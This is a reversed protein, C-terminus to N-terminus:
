LSVWFLIVHINSHVLLKGFPHCGPLITCYFICGLSFIDVSRSTRGNISADIPSAELMAEPGSCEEQLIPSDPSLRHAMVEPAQWGVSGPGAGAITSGENRSMSMGVSNNMTSMGFSSQGMLQKGLGMDSIKVVFDQSQFSEFVGDQGQNKRKRNKRALLINAPKLDRHVIRLSHIHKVGLAIEFLLQKTAKDIPIISGKKVRSQPLVSKMRNRAMVTILDQLNMDCLELALYVFDGRVEKLFYRVVNPHGDSEILLSIERDASAHYAKLMRKVAVARGELQGKYVVTGHGGFGLVQDSVDIVCNSAQNTDDNDVSEKNSEDSSDRRLKSDIKLKERRGLEFSVVFALAVAPPIWSTMLKLFFNFKSQPRPQQPTVINPFELVEENLTIALNDQFLADNNQRIFSHLLCEHYSSSLPDCFDNKVALAYDDKRPRQQQGSWLPLKEMSHKNSGVKSSLRPMHPLGDLLRQNPGTPQGGLPLAFLEGTELAGFVTGGMAQNPNDGFYNNESIADEELKSSLYESSFSNSSPADPVVFVGLSSGSSSELAFAVPTKFADDAIWMVKGTQGDCLAVKGGPTTVVKTTHFGNKNQVQDDENHNIMGIFEEDGEKGTPLMLLEPHTNLWDEGDDNSGITGIMDELSLVESTSFQVDLEGTRADQVTVLYDVRGMWILNRQQEASANDNRECYGDGRSNDDDNCFSHDHDYGDFIDNIEDSNNEELEDSSMYKDKRSKNVNSSGGGGSGGNLHSRMDGVDDYHNGGVVKVVDGTDRDLAIAYSERSSVYFRGRADMFPSRDVLDKINMTITSEAIAYNGLNKPNLKRRSNSSSSSSSSSDNKQTNNPDLNKNNNSSSSSSGRNNSGGLTLFVKGDISPVASTKWSSRTSSRTTSTTILPAFIISEDQQTQNDDRINNTNRPQKKKKQQPKMRHKHHHHGHSSSSSGNKDTDDGIKSSTSKSDNQQQRQEQNNEWLVEGTTKSMGYFTGDITAVIIVNENDDNENNNPSNSNGFPLRSHYRELEMGDAHHHSSKHQTSAHFNAHTNEQKSNLREEKTTTSTISSSSSDSADVASLLSYRYRGNTGFFYNNIIDSSTLPGHQSHERSSKKDLSSLILFATAAFAAASSILSTHNYQKRKM